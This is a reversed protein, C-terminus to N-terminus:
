RRRKMIMVVAALLGAIGLLGWWGASPSLTDQAPASSATTSESSADDSKHTKNPYKTVLEGNEVTVYPASYDVDDGARAPEVAWQAMCFTLCALM